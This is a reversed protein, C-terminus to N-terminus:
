RHDSRKKAELYDAFKQGTNESLRERGGSAVQGVRGAFLEALTKPPEPEEGPRASAEPPHNSIWAAPTVGSAEAAEQLAAYVTDPPELMRSM